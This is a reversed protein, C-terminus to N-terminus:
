KLNAFGVSFANEMEAYHKTSSINGLTVAVLTRSTTKGKVQGILCYGSEEIYGTKIGTIQWQTQLLKNRNTITHAKKTNLTSFTYFKKVSVRQIEPKSFAIAALKAMDAASGQNAPDLGTPDGFTLSTLGLAQAKENMLKVFQADTLKTSRVLARTANNASGILMAHWLDNTTMTEGVSVQLCSCITADSKQYTVVNQFTPKRDLYVLATMLKSLSAIPHREDANKVAVLVGKDVDYVAGATSTIPLAVATTSTATPTPTPAVVQEGAVLPTVAAVKVKAVGGNTGKIKKFATYVLDVIRGRVYPGRSVVRVITSKGNEVNTVRLKTGMPYVNHAVGDPYKTSRYWSAIGVEERLDEVVVLYGNTFLKNKTVEWVKRVPNYFYIYLPRYNQVAVKPAITLGPANFRLLSADPANLSVYVAAARQKVYTPLPSPLPVDPTALFSGAAPVVGKPLTLTYSKYGIQQAASTPDVPLVTSSPSVVADPGFVGATTAVDTVPVVTFSLARTAGTLFNDTGLKTGVISWTGNAYSLLVTKTNVVPTALQKLWLDSSAITAGDAPTISVSFARGAATYRSPLATPLAADPTVTVQAPAAFLNPRLGLIFANEVRIEQGKTAYDASLHVVTPEAARAPAVLGIGVVLALIILSKKIYQRQTM